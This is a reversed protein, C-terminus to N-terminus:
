VFDASTLDLRVSKGQDETDRCGSTLFECERDPLIQKGYAWDIAATMVVTVVDADIPEKLNRKFDQDLSIEARTSADSAKFVTTHQGDADPVELEVDNHAASTSGKGGSDINERPSSTNKNRISTFSQHGDYTSGNNSVDDINSINVFSATSPTIKRAEESRIQLRNIATTLVVYLIM